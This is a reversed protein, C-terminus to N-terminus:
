ENYPLTIIVTYTNENAEIVMNAQKGYALNLRQRINEQAIGHGKTNKEKAVPNKISFVLQKELKHGRIEVCGGQELPQIGHYVANEVLPQLSLAPILARGPVNDVEWMVQLRDGLRLKELHLYHKTTNLEQSLTITDSSTLAARFVDALDEVAEEAQEPYISILSAITNLSNFLFHPRIKAQLAQIRARTHIEIHKKWTYRHYFYFWVLLTVTMSILVSQLIFSVYWSIDSQKVIGLKNLALSALYSFILVTIIPISNWLINALRQSFNKLFKTSICLLSLSVLSITLLFLSSLGMRATISLALTSPGVAIVLALLQSLGMFILLIHAKCIEPLFVKEKM